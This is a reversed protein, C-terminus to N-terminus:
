TFMRKEVAQRADEYAANLMGLQVQFDAWEEGLSSWRDLVAGLDKKSKAVAAVEAVKDMLATLNGTDARPRIKKDIEAIGAIRIDAVSSEEPLFFEILAVERYGERKKKSVKTRAELPGDTSQGEQGVTGKRGWRYVTIEQGYAHICEWYKHSNDTDNDYELRIAEVRM